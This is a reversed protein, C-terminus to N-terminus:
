GNIIRIDEVKGTIELTNHEIVNILLHTGGIELKMGHCKVTTSSENIENVGIAGIVVISFGGIKPRVEFYPSSIIRRVKGNEKNKEKLTM